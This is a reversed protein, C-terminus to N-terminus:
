TKVETLQTIECVTIEGIRGLITSKFFERDLRVTAKIRRMAPTHMFQVNIGVIIGTDSAIESKKIGDLKVHVRQGVRFECQEDFTKVSEAFM